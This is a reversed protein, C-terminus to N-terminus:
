LKIDKDHWPEIDLTIVISTSTITVLYDYKYGPKWEPIDMAQRFKVTRAVPADCVVAEMEAPTGNVVTATMFNMELDSVDQPFALVYGDDNLASILDGSTVSPPYGDEDKTKKANFNEIASSLYTPPFAHDDDEDWRFISYTGDANKHNYARGEGEWYSSNNIAAMSESWDQINGKNRSSSLFYPSYLLAEQESSVPMYIGGNVKYDSSGSPQFFHSRCEYVRVKIPNGDGDLEKNDRIGDKNFDYMTAGKQYVFPMFYHDNDMGKGEARGWYINQSYNPYKEEYHTKVEDTNDTSADKEVLRQSIVLYKYNNPTNSPDECKIYDSKASLNYNGNEDIRLKIFDYPERDTQGVPAHIMQDDVNGNGGVFMKDPVRTYVQSAYGEATRGIILATMDIHCRLNLLYWNALVLPSDTLNRVRIRFASMAHEMPFEVTKGFDTPEVVKYGVLVDDLARTLYANVPGIDVIDNRVVDDARFSDNAPDDSPTWIPDNRTVKYPWIAGFGYRDVSPIWYQHPAYDWQGPTLRGYILPLNSIAFAPETRNSVFTWGYLSMDKKQMDAVSDVIVKAKSLPRVTPAFSIANDEATDRRSDDIDMGQRSCSLVTLVSAFYILHKAKM